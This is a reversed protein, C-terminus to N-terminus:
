RWGDRSPTSRGATNRSVKVVPPRQDILQYYAAEESGEKAARMKKV